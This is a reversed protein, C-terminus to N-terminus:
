GAVVEALASEPRDLEAFSGQEVIQGNRMILIKDFREPNAAQPLTWILGKGQRAAFVQEMIRNQTLNDMAATAENLILVDPQKLIARAIALKQRQTASLRKGGVGVNYDLGVEM